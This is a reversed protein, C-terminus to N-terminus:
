KAFVQYSDSIHKDRADDAAQRRKNAGIALGIVKGILKSPAPANHKGKWYEMNKVTPYPNEQSYENVDKDENFDPM